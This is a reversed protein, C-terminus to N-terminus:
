GALDRHNIALPKYDLVSNNCVYVSGGAALKLKKTAEDSQSVHISNYM